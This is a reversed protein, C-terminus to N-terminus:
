FWGQTHLIAGVILTGILFGKILDEGALVARVAPDDSLYSSIAINEESFGMYDSCLAGMSNDNDWIEGSVLLAGEGAIAEYIVVCSSQSHGGFMVAGGVKEHHVTEVNALVLAPNSPYYRVNDPSFLEPHGSQVFGQQQYDRAMLAFLANYTTQIMRVGLKGCETAVVKGLALTTPVYSLTALNVASAGFATGVWGTDFLLPRGKEACVRVAELSAEVTPLPRLQIKRLLKSSILLTVFMGVFVSLIDVRSIVFKITYNFITYPGVTYSM